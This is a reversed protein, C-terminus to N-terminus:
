EIPAPPITKRGDGDFGAVAVVVIRLFAGIAETDPEPLIRYHRSVHCGGIM